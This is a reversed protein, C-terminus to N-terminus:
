ILTGAIVAATMDDPTGDHTKRLIDLGVNAQKYDLKEYESSLSKAKM